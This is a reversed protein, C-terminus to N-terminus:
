RAPEPPQYENSHRLVIDDAEISGDGALTGAIVAGQGERVADPFRGGYHVTVDRAGDTIVMVSGDPSESLSGQVVMGGLRVRDGPGEAGVLESPTRYYTLGDGAAAWGLAILGAVAVALVGIRVARSSPRPWARNSM